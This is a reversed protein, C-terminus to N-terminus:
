STPEWILTADDPLSRATTMSGDVKLVALDPKSPDDALTDWDMGFGRLRYANGDSDVFLSGLAASAVNGSM